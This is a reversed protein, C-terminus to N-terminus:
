QSTKREKEREADKEKIQKERKRQWWSDVCYIEKELTKVLVPRIKVKVSINFLGLSQNVQM